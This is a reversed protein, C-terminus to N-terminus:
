EHHYAEGKIITMARYLQEAFLLRIMQHSFTMKSLSVLKRARQYVRESFGFAGGIVFVICQNTAYIMKNELFSAFGKSSFMEGSEDLLILEDKADIQALIQEGEMEKLQAKSLRKNKKLDPVIVVEVNLYFKLRQLYMEILADLRSDSNKGVVLIKVKLVFQKKQQRNQYIKQLLGWQYNPLISKTNVFILFPIFTQVKGM